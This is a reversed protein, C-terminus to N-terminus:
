KRPRVTPCRLPRRAMALSILFLPIVCRQALRDEKIIASAPNGRFPFLRVTMCCAEAFEPLVPKCLVGREDSVGRSAKALLEHVCSRDISTHTSDGCISPGYRCTRVISRTHVHTM